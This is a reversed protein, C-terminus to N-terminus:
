SVQACSHHVYRLHGLITDLRLIVRCFYIIGFALSFYIDADDPVMGDISQVPHFTYTQLAAPIPAQSSGEMRLSVRISKENLRIVAGLGMRETGLEWM